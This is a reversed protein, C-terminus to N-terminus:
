NGLNKEYEYVATKLTDSLDGDNTVIFDCSGEYLDKREEYLKQVGYKKTLPRNDAELKDLSRTLYCVAGNRKLNEVNQEKLVSGGGCAIVTGTKLSVAAIIESEVNRFFDEGKTEIIKEPSLGSQKEIEEDVDIFDMGLKNALLRGVTTKGCSPMGILAVNKYGYLTYEYASKFYKEFSKNQRIEEAKLAQYVLMKLGGEAKIKRKECQRVLPTKLPYYCVDAVFKLNPLRDLDVPLTKGDTGVPTANILVEADGHTYYNEYNVKENRGVLVFSGGESEVLARATKSTGGTGLIMVKKGNIEVGNSTFLYRLGDIDTNYGSKKGNKTVVTNVSGISKASGDIYDLYGIIEEKFPMTVNFCDYKDENCFDKLGDKKLTELCYDTGFYSHIKPSLSHGITTGILCAKLKDNGVVKNQLAKSQNFIEGYVSKVCEAENLTKGRCLRELIENERQKVQVDARIRAKELGIKRCYDLRKLLLDSIEDDLADILTRYEEVTM